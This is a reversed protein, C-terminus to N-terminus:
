RALGPSLEIHPTGNREWNNDDEKFVSSITKFFLISLLSFFVSNNFLIDDGVRKGTAAGMESGVELNENETM